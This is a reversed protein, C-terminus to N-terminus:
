EEKVQVGLYNPYSWVLLLGGSDPLSPNDVAYILRSSRSVAFKLTTSTYMPATRCLPAGTALEHLTICKSDSFLFCSLDLIKLQAGM